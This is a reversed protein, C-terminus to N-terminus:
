MLVLIMRTGVMRRERRKEREEVRKLVKWLRHIIILLQECRAKVPSARIVKMLRIVHEAIDKGTARMMEVLFIKVNHGLKLKFDNSLCCNSLIQDYIPANIIQGHKNIGMNQEELEDQELTCKFMSTLIYPEKPGSNKDIFDVLEEWHRVDTQSAQLLKPALVMDKGNSVWHIMVTFRTNLLEPLNSRTQKGAHEGLDTVPRKNGRRGLEWGDRIKSACNKLFMEVWQQRIWEAKILIVLPLWNEFTALFDTVRDGLAPTWRSSTKIPEAGSYHVSAEERSVRGGM